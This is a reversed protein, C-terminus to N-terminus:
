KESEREAICARYLALYQQAPGDWSRDVAMGNRIMTLRRKKSAWGRAARHLADVVGAASVVPSVFGTGKVCDADSDLVTDHLGGVDTVVPLTGYAMAQMQALGCPEFRSPMLYLDSGAFIRHALSLDFADRFAVRDPHAAELARLRAALYPDGAGLVVLQADISGLFQAADIAMDVGKQDVLRTVFGILPGYVDRLGLDARLAARCALKGPADTMRFDAASFPAPLFPDVAPDWTDADIGNLIGILADGRDLLAGDVGCGFEPTRIEDAYHPSVAVVRDALKLAGVLPNCSGYWEYAYARDGFLSMWGGDCVGQYALNHISAVTPIDRDAFAIAPGTHWDNIHLVDAARSRALAAAAASFAMFRRDNDAWGQEGGPASYPHPRAIGPVDVLTVTGFGALTGTRASAGGVWDPVDLTEDVQDDLPTGGDGRGAYDPVVVDVEVGAKRLALVLGSAAEALGGVRVLPALEATAFLVRMARVSGLSRQGVASVRAALGGVRGPGM